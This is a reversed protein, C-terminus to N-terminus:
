SKGAEDYDGGVLGILSNGFANTGYFATAEAQLSFDKGLYVGASKNFVLDNIKGEKGRMVDIREIMKGHLNDVIIASGDTAKLLQSLSSLM